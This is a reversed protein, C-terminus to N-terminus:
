EKDEKDMNEKVIYINPIVGLVPINFKETIQEVSRLRKDSRDVIVIIVCAVVLSVAALLIAYKIATNKAYGANTNQINDNRTIRQCSTGLYGGPVPMIEEIFEPVYKIIRSRVNNAFAENNVVSIKIYFFSRAYNSDSGDSPSKYSYSAAWRFGALEGAYFSSYAERWQELTEDFVEKQVNKKDILEERASTQVELANDYAAIAPQYKDTWLTNYTNEEPTTPSTIKSPTGTKGLNAWANNVETQAKYMADKAEALADNATELATKATEIDALTARAATIKAALSDAAAAALAAAEDDTLEANQKKFKEKDNRIKQIMKADPLGDEDLMLTEAFLESSLLKVMNDMVNEGYSGYISYESEQDSNADKQPNVYFAITTGYYNVDRTKMFGYSAGAIIAVLFVIVLIKLKRIFLKVIEVLSIEDQTQLKEQTREEM